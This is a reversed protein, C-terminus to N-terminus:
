AQVQLTGCPTEELGLAPGECLAEVTLVVNGCQLLDRECLRRDIRGLRMGNLFTGNKSGLDRAVWGQETYEIEAHRRSISPDNLLVEFSDLRGIRLRDEAEWKNDLGPGVTRLRIRRETMRRGKRTPLRTRRRTRPLANRGPHAAHPLSIARATRPRRLVVVP